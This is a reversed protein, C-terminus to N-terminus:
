SWRVRVTDAWSRGISEDGEVIAECPRNWLWLYADSASGRVTFDVPGFEETQEARIREGGFTIVWSPGDGLLDLGLVGPESIANSRRAAFGQLIEAIGDQAFDTEFPTVSGAASQADARHIATEHAQRRVWFHLPTPAPLFTACALDAPASSLTALLAAFGNHFWEVLEDDAPGSGVAKGALTDTTSSCTDVIDAAWRHVGGVHKVLARVDWTTGPVPADWGARDAAEILQPGDAALENLLREVDM